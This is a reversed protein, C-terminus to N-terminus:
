NKLREEKLISSYHKLRLDYDTKEYVNLFRTKILHFVENAEKSLKSGHSEMIEIGRNVQAGIRNIRESEETSSQSGLYNLVNYVNSFVYIGHFIGM